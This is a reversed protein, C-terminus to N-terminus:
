PPPAPCPAEPLNSSAPTCVMPRGSREILTRLKRHEDLYVDVRFEALATPAADDPNSLLGGTAPDFGFSTSLQDPPAEVARLSVAGRAPIQVTRVETRNNLGACATGVGQTCNCPGQDGQVFPATYMTYCSLEGNNRFDVRMVTNRSIAESRAFQLDTVLQAQVGRMRQMEVLRTFSPATLAVIVMAVAIVAMLEVLTLGPKPRRPLCRLLRM